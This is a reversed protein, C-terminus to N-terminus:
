VHPFSFRGRTASSPVFGDKLGGPICVPQHRTMTRDHSRLMAPAFNEAQIPGLRMMVTTPVEPADL